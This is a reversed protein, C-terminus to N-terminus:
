QGHCHAGLWKNVRVGATMSTAADPVDMTSLASPSVTGDGRLREDTPAFAILAQLDPKLDSPAVKEANQYAVLLQGPPLSSSEIRGVDDTIPQM